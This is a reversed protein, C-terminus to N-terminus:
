NVVGECEVVEFVKGCKTCYYPDLANAVRKLVMHPCDEGDKLKSKKKEVILNTM